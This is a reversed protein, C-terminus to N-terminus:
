FYKDMNARTTLDFIKAALYCKPSCKAEKEGSVKFGLRDVLVIPTVIVIIVKRIIGMESTM